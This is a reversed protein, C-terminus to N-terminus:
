SQRILFSCLGLSPKISVVGSKHRTDGTESVELNDLMDLVLEPFGTKKAWIRLQALSM